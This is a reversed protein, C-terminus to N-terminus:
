GPLSQGPLEAERPKGNLSSSKVKVPSAAPKGDGRPLGNFFAFAAGATRAPWNHPYYRKHGNLDHNHRCWVVPHVEDPGGYRVCNLDRPEVPEPTRRYLWSSAGPRVM